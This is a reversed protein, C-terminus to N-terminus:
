ESEGTNIVNDLDEKAAEPATEAPKEAKKKKPSKTIIKGGDVISPESVKSEQPEEVIREWGYNLYHELQEPRVDREIGALKMKIFM